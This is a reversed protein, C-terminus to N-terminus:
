VCVCLTIRGIRIKKTKQETESCERPPRGNRREAAAHTLWPGTQDGAEEMCLAQDRVRERHPQRKRHLGAKRGTTADCYLLLM